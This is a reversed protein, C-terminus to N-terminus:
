DGGILNELQKWISLNKVPAYVASRSKIDEIFAAVKERFEALKSEEATIEQKRAEIKELLDQKTM